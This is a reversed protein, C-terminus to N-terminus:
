LLLLGSPRLKFQNYFHGDLPVLQVGPDIHTRNSPFAGDCVWSIQCRTIHLYLLSNLDSFNF